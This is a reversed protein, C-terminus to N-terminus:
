RKVWAPMKRAKLKGPKKREVRRPDRTIVRARRLAPKLDPEHALLAKALGLAIADAQGTTGGGQALAWVNYKDLRQTAKLAWVATERDHLRGFYDTLARGNILVKGEGEVVFVSATSSKRRGVAKSKGDKDVLIPKPRNHHPQVLRKFKELAQTVETPILSPHIYNLRKLLELLMKYSKARVPEAVEAKYQDITKWAVRPAEGTPLVPLLQYKRLLASLALLDDTYRPTATFYSPSAPVIRIRRLIPHNRPDDQNGGRRPRNMGGRGRGRDMPSEIIEARTTTPTQRDLVFQGNEEPIEPAARIDENISAMGRRTTRLWSPTSRYAAAVRRLCHRGLTSEM